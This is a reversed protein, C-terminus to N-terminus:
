LQKRQTGDKGELIYCFNINEFIDNKWCGSFIINNNNKNNNNNSNNNFTKDNINNNNNINDKIIKPKTYDQSKGNETGFICKTVLDMKRICDVDVWCM